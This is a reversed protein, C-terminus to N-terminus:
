QRSDGGEEISPPLVASLIFTSMPGKGKPTVVRQEWSYKDCCSLADYVPLSVHLCGPLGTSEMRSSTNITDGFLCYRPMKV